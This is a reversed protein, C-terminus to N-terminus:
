WPKGCKRVGCAKFKRFNNRNFLDMLVWNISLRENPLFLDDFIKNEYYLLYFSSQHLFAVVIAQM